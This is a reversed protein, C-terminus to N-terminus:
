NVLRAAAVRLMLAEYRLRNLALERVADLGGGAGTAYIAESVVRPVLDWAIVGTDAQSELREAAAILIEHTTM